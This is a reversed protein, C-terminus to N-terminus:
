APVATLALVLDTGFHLIETLSPQPGGDVLQADAQGTISALEPPDPPRLGPSWVLAGPQSRVGITLPWNVGSIGPGAPPSGALAPLAEPYPAQIRFRGLHDAVAQYVASGTDIRILAWGLPEGTGDRHIEGRVVATAAGAARTPASSLPLEAPAAVPIDLAVSTPLYRAFTDAVVLCWAETTVAPWTIPQGPPVRRHTNAWQRPLSGFSHIGSVPSRKATFRRAPETRRWATALLGDAVTIGTVGDRCLVALPTRYGHREVVKVATV